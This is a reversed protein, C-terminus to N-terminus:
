CRSSISANRCDGCVYVPTSDGVTALGWWWAGQQWLGACLREYYAESHDVTAMKHHSRAMLPWNNTMRICVLANGCCPTWRGNISAVGQPAVRPFLIFFIPRQPSGRDSDWWYIFRNVTQESTPQIHIRFSPEIHKTRWRWPRQTFKLFRVHFFIFGTEMKAFLSFMALMRFDRIRYIACSFAQSNLNRCSKASQKQRVSPHRSRDRTQHRGHVCPTKHCVHIEKPNFMCRIASQRGHKCSWDETPRYSPVARNTHPCSVEGSAVPSARSRIPGVQYHFKIAADVGGADKMQRRM